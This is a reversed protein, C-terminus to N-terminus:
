WGYNVGFSVTFPDNHYYGPTYKDVEGSIDAKELGLFVFAGNIVQYRVDLGITRSKWVTEDLFRNVVEIRDTGLEEHDPGHRAFDYSLQASLGRLPRFFLDAHFGKSNDLLYHGLNYNNSAFSTNPMNHKYVLPYTQIYEMRLEVNPILDSLGLGAKLSYYDFHGNEKFRKTSLDDFFLTAFLHLHRIQRSSVDFFLQSNQGGENSLNQNESHDISKYFFVPILYSPNVDRDGYIISNGFSFYFNRMPKFTFLNAAIFKKRYVTRYGTGYSNTYSYSNVSDVLGSALWGHIYNFEFWKVPRVNLKIHTFSPAKASLINPYHYYNGWEFHDKVLGIAGWDWQWTVGGRMESYDNGSKYRAGPRTTLYGTGSLLTKEHNDTLSVYAAVHRGVYAFAEAGNWRHFNTGNSNNWVQIGLVPNLSFTFLSDRFYLLDVRKKFNKDPMLEKNFDKLYFALEKQQRTNLPYATSESIESLKRAIFQRSYPKVASNLEIIRLNAMEDLFDYISRNSVHLYVEQSFSAPLFLILMLLPITIRKM